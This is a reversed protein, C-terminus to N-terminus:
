IGVLGAEELVELFHGVLLRCAALAVMGDPHRGKLMQALEMFQRIQSELFYILQEQLPKPVVQHVFGAGFAGRWQAAVGM